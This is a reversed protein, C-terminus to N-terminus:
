LGFYEKYITQNEIKGVTLITLRDSLDFYERIFEIERECPYPTLYVSKQLPLFKLRKLLERLTQQTSKRKIPIDYLVLRWKKDWKKTTLELEEIAYSFLRRHGNETIQIQEIGDKEVIEVIKSRKLREITRRLYSRNFRKWEDASSSYFHHLKVAKGMGPAIFLTSLLLGKGLLTIVEKVTAYRKEQEKKILTKELLTSLRSVQSNDMIVFYLM